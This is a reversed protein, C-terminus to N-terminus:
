PKKSVTTRLVRLVRAEIQRVRETSVDHQRALEKLTLKKTGFRGLFIDRERPPLEAIADLTRKMLDNQDDKDM